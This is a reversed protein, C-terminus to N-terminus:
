GMVENPRSSYREKRGPDDDPSVHGESRSSTRSSARSSARKQGRDGAFPLESRHLERTQGLEDCMFIFEDVVVWWDSIQARPNSNASNANVNEALYEEIMSTPVPKKWANPPVKSTSVAWRTVTTLRVPTPTGIRLFILDYRKRLDVAVKSAKELTEPPVSLRITSLRRDDLLADDRETRTRPSRAIMCERQIALNPEFSALSSSLRIPPQSWDLTRGGDRSTPTPTPVPSRIGKSPAVSECTGTEESWDRSISGMPPNSKRM